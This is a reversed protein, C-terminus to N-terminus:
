IKQMEEVVNNVQFLTERLFAVNETAEMAHERLREDELRRDELQM